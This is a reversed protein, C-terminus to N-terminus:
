VRADGVLKALLTRHCRDPDICASSCLLTITGRDAHRALTAISDGQREMEGHYRRRYEDWSLPAGTKGYAAAHLAPSPGLEKHWVAWTEKHKPLGRPRYRCVLIRMGDDPEIAENWRKTKIM